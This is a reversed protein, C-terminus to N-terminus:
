LVVGSPPSDSLWIVDLPRIKHRPKEHRGVRVYDPSSPTEPRLVMVYVVKGKLPTRDIVDRLTARRSICSMWMSSLGRAVL